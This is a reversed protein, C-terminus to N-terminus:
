ASSAPVAGGPRGDAIRAVMVTTSAVTLFGRRELAITVNGQPEPAVANVRRPRRAFLWGTAADILGAFEDPSAEPVTSVPFYTGMGVGPLFYARLAAVGGGALERKWTALEVSGGRVTVENHTLTAEGAPFAGRYESPRGAELRAALSGWDAPGVPAVAPPVPSEMAPLATRSLWSYSGVPRYGAARYVRIAVQNESEVDLAMWVRHYRRAREALLALLHSAIGRGRLDPRTAVGAVYATRPLWLVTATGVVDTGQTGVVTDVVPRGILRLWWIWWWTSRLSLQAIAAESTLDLGTSREFNGVAMRVVSHYSAYDSRRLPRYVFPGPTAM